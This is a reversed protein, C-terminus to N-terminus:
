WSRSGATWRWLNVFQGRARALHILVGRTLRRQSDVCEQGETLRM